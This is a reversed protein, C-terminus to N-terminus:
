VKEGRFNGTKREKGSSHCRKTTPTLIWGNRFDHSLKTALMGVHTTCGNEDDGVAGGTGLVGGDRHVVIGYLGRYLPPKVGEVPTKLNLGDLGDVRKLWAAQGV